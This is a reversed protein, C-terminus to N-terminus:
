TVKKGDRVRGRTGKKDLFLGRVECFSQLQPAIIEELLDGIIQGFRHSPSNAM